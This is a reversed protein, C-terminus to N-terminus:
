TVTSRAPSRPQSRPSTATKDMSWLAPPDRPGNFDAPPAPVPQPDLSNVATDHVMTGLKASASGEAHCTQCSEGNEFLDPDRFMARGEAVLQDSAVQSTTADVANLIRQLQGNSFKVEGHSMDVIAATQQPRDDRSVAAVAFGALVVAAVAFLIRIPKRTM